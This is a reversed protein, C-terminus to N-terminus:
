CSFRYSASICSSISNRTVGPDGLSGFIAAAESYVLGFIQPNLATLAFYSNDSPLDGPWTSVNDYALAGVIPVIRAASMVIGTIAAALLIPTLGRWPRTLGQPWTKLLFAAIIPFGFAAIYGVHGKMFIEFFCLTLLVYSTLRRRDQWTVIFYISALSLVLLHTGILTTTTFWPFQSLQAVLAVLVASWPDDLYRSAIKFSLIGVLCIEVFIVATLAQFIYAEPVLLLIWNLPDLMHNHMSTTFDTGAFIYPNWLPLSGSRLSRYGFIINPYHAFHNDTGSLIVKFQFVWRSFLALGTAVFILLSHKSRIFNEVQPAWRAGQARMLMEHRELM